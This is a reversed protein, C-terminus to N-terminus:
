LPKHKRLLNYELCIRASEQDGESIAEFINTHELHILKPNSRKYTRFMQASAMEIIRKMVKVIVENQTAKAVAVHFDLDFKVIMESNGESIAQEWRSLIDSMEALNDPEVRRAALAAVSPEFLRRAEFASFSHNTNKADRLFEIFLEESDVGWMSPATSKVYTGGGQQRRIVGVLELASLAERVSGRSIGTQRMLEHEPPLKDGSRLQGNKLADLIHTILIVARKEGLKGVM